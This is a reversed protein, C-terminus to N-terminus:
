ENCFPQSLKVTEFDKARSEVRAYTLLDNVLARMRHEGEVAHTIYRQSDADLKDAQKSALLTLFGSVARLPEQLDHSAVYAFQQLDANSRTLNITTDKLAKEIRKRQEVETNLDAVRQKEDEIAKRTIQYVWSLLAIAMATFCGTTTWIANQFFRLDNVRVRLLKEENGIMVNIQERYTDMVHKGERQVTLRVLPDNAQDGKVNAQSQIMKEQALARLREVATQEEPNDTTLGQVQDIHRKVAPMGWHLPELFEPSMTVLYGREATEVDQLATLSDKLEEIVKHTHITWYDLDYLKYSLYGM